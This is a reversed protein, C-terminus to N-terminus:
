RSQQYKSYLTLPNTTFIERFLSRQGLSAYFELGSNRYLQYPFYNQQFFNVGLEEDTQARSVPAVEKVIGVMHLINSLNESQHFQTLDAGEERCIICGPRRIVFILTLPVPAHTWIQEAVLPSKTLHIKGNEIFDLAVKGLSRFKQMMM